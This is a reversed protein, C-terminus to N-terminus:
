PRNATAAQLTVADVTGDEDFFGRDLGLAQREAPTLPEDFVIDSGGEAIAEAELAKRAPAGCAGPIGARRIRNPPLEHCGVGGGFSITL